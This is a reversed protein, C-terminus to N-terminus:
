IKDIQANEQYTVHTITRADREGMLGVCTPIL